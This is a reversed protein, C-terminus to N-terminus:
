NETLCCVCISSNAHSGRMMLIESACIKEVLFEDKSKTYSNWTTSKNLMFYFTAMQSTVLNHSQLQKVNYNQACEM